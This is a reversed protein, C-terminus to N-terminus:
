LRTIWFIINKKCFHIAEREDILTFFDIWYM